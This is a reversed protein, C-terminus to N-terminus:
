SGAWAPLAVGPALALFRQHVRPDPRLEPHFTAALLGPAEVLVPDAGDRALVRVGPGARRFRPARIFVAPLEGGLEPAAVDRAFSDVQRGYANREVDLDLLGLTPPNGGAVRALLIAGACTGFLALEGRRHREPLEDWLGFLALLRALTTSEGGPLVLHTLGDLDAPSRVARPDVGLARLLAAHPEFDGQLALVGV